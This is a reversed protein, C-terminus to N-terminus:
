QQPSSHQEEPSAKHHDEAKTRSHQFSPNQKTSRRALEVHQLLSDMPSLDRDYFIVDRDCLVCLRVKRITDCNPNVCANANEIVVSLCRAILKHRIPSGNSMEDLNALQSGVYRSPHMRVVIGPASAGSCSM